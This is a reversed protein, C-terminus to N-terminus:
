VFSFGFELSWLGCGGSRFRCGFESLFLSLEPSVRVYSKNSHGECSVRMFSVQRWLAVLFMQGPLYHLSHWSDMRTALGPLILVTVSPSFSKKSGFFNILLLSFASAEPRVIMVARGYMMRFSICQPEIGVQLWVHRFSKKM